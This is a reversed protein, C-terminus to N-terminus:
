HSSFFVLVFSCSCLFRDRTIVAQAYHLATRLALCVTPYAPGLTNVASSVSMLKKMTTNADLTACIAELLRTEAPKDLPGVGHGSLDVEVISTNNRLAEMVAVFDDDTLREGTQKASLRHSTLTMPSHLDCPWNDVEVCFM